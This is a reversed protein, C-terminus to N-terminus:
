RFYHRPLIRKELKARVHNFANSFMVDAEVKGSERYEYYRRCCGILAAMEPVSKKFKTRVELLTRPSVLQTM